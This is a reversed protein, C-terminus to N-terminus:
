RGPGADPGSSSGDYTWVPEEEAPQTLVAMTRHIAVGDLAPLRYDASRIHALLDTDPTLRHRDLYYTTTDTWIWTGDTRFNMPVANRQSRDVVDDMQATTVLLPAGARLYDLVRTTEADDTMRGHDAAFRPGAQADVEDFVAALKIEPPPTAAWILQGYARALRQYTPLDAGLPFTEVQPNIEGAAALRQQLRGTLAALDAGTDTEILYVRRPPPWPSGGAPSRWARWVGRLGAEASAADVAARDVEDTPTGDAGASTAVDPPTPGFGYPPAPDLEAIRAQALASADAGAAALVESLLAVDEQVLPVDQARVAFSVAQAVDATNGDALWTRARSILDDSVKGALRLLVGHLANMCMVEKALRVLDASGAGGPGGDPRITRQAAARGHAPAYVEEM